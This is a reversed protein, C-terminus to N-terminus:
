VFHAIPLEAIVKEPQAILDAYIQELQLVEQEVSKVTQIGQRLNTLLEPEDLIRALQKRLDDVDGREFLLGNVEHTVAEAMGGLNTAIVPTQTAFAELIVLPANEYWMSPVILVDIEALVEALQARQFRGRLVISADDGVLEQLEEGYGPERNLDGWIDLRARGNVLLQQFAQVLLHVGKIKTIQGMYGFRIQSSSRKGTYHAAWDLDLGNSIHLVRQSLGAHAVTKQVFTSHALIANPLEIEKRMESKRYDMDIAMGRAGRRRALLPVHSIGYWLAPQLQSSLMSKTRRYLHSSALLCEQCEWPTTRGDCIEGDGRLLSTRPCLFWFDMLTLVCPIHARHASRLIGVGLSYTSTIHILDPRHTQLYQDLWQEVQLSEFLVLNPNSAKTWNLHIRMVPVGLYLDETVGNWYADGSQWDEACLVRVEHGKALFAQALGLTYNETGANHKPPFFHTILLIHM